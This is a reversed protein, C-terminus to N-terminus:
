QPAAAEAKAAMKKIDEILWQRAASGEAVKVKNEYVVILPLDRINYQKSVPSQYDIGNFGPRNINVRRIAYREPYSKSTQILFMALEVCPACYDSSFDVVTVKGACALSNIDLTKGHSLEQYDARGGRDSAAWEAIKATAVPEARCLPLLAAAIVPILVKPTM